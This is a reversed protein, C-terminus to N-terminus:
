AKNVRNPKSYELFDDIKGILTDIKLNDKDSIAIYRDFLTDYNKSLTNYSNVLTGQNNILTNHSNILTGHSDAIKKFSEANMKSIEVNAKEIAIFEYFYREFRDPLIQNERNEKYSESQFSQSQFNGPPHDNLMEGEGTLLWNKNLEPYAKLIKDVTKMTINEKINNVYGRSLGVNKAFKDQGIGLYKLFEILRKKM